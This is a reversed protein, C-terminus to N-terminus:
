PGWGMLGFQRKHPEEMQEWCAKKKAEVTPYKADDEIIARYKNALVSIATIYTVLEGWQGIEWGTVVGDELKDGEGLVQRLREVKGAGKCARCPVTAKTVAHKIPDKGTGKCVPCDQTGQFQQRLWDEAKV